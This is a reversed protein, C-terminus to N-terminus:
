LVYRRLVFDQDCRTKDVYDYLSLKADEERHKGRKYGHEEARASLKALDDSGRAM